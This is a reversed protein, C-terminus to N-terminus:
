MPFNLHSFHTYWRQADKWFAWRNRLPSTSCIYSTRPAQFRPMSIGKQTPCAHSRRLSPGWIQDRRALGTAWVWPTQWWDLSTTSVLSPAIKETKYDFIFTGCWDLHTLWWPQLFRVPKRVHNPAGFNVVMWQNDQKPLKSICTLWNEEILLLTSINGRTSASELKKRQEIISLDLNLPTKISLGGTWPVPPGSAVEEGGGEWHHWIWAHVVWQHSRHTYPSIRLAGEWM